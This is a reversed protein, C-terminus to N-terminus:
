SHSRLYEMVLRACVTGIFAGTLTAVTQVVFAKM